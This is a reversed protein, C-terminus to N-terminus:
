FDDSSLTYFYIGSTLNLAHNFEYSYNGANKFGDVLTEIEKGLPDYVKLTVNTSKLISFKITTVPNFPNPFNQELTYKDPIQINNSNIEVPNGYIMFVGLDGGAFGLTSSM